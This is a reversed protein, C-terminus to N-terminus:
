LAENTRSTLPQGKKKAEINVAKGQFLAHINHSSTMERARPQYAGKVTMLM